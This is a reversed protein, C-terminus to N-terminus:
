HLRRNCYSKTETWSLVRISSDIQEHTRNKDDLRLHGFLMLFLHVLFGLSELVSFPSNFSEFCSLSLALSESAVALSILFSFLDFSLLLRAPDQPSFSVRGREM